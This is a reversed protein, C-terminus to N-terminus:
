GHSTHRLKEKGSQMDTLLQQIRQQTSTDMEMLEYLINDIPQRDHKPDAIYLTYAERLRQKNETSLERVNIIPAQKILGPSINYTGGGYVHAQSRIMIEMISSTLVALYVETDPISQEPLLFEIFLEGPVYQARNWVVMLNKYILRPILITGRGRRQLEKTLDYWYVRHGHQIREKTHYGTVTQNKGRVPVTTTEGQLIYRLANTGALAEKSKGCHFLYYAPSTDPEVVIDSVTRISHVMPIVYETEINHSKVDEPSLVFFEKALTQIGIRTKALEEFHVMLPHSSLAHIIDAGSFYQHWVQKADLHKQQIGFVCLDEHEKLTDVQNNLIQVPLGNKVRIFNVVRSKRPTRYRTALLMIARVDVDFVRRDFSILREIEFNQTLFDKFEQGYKAGLWTDAVIVALKGGEKLYTSARLLFYIYLDTLRSLKKVIQPQKEFISRRLIDVDSLYHRRVYPPNGIIADVKPFELTLFDGHILNPFALGDNQAAQRLKHFAPEYVEAGYIQTQAVEPTVGLDNFRRMASWVFAGDGVGLDLVRARCDNIAWSALYNSFEPPTFISGLSRLNKNRVSYGQSTTDVADIQDASSMQNEPSLVDLVSLTQEEYRSTHLFPSNAVLGVKVSSHLGSRSVELSSHHEIVVGFALMM